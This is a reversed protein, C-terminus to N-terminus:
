TLPFCSFYTLLV